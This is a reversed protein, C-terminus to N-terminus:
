AAAAASFGASHRPLRPVHPVSRIGSRRVPGDGAGSVRMSVLDVPSVPPLLLFRFVHCDHTYSVSRERPSDLVDRRAKAVPDAEAAGAGDAGADLRRAM